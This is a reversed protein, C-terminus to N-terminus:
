CQPAPHTGTRATTQLGHSKEKQLPRDRLQPGKSPKCHSKSPKWGSGFEQGTPKGAGEWKLYARLRIAEESLPKGKEVPSGAASAVASQPVSNARASAPQRLIATKRRM